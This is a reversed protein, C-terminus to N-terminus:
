TILILKTKSIKNHRPLYIDVNPLFINDGDEPYFYKLSIGCRIIRM